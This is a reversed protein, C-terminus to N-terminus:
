NSESNVIAVQASDVAPRSCGYLTNIASDYIQEMTLYQIDFILLDQYIAKFDHLILNEYKNVYEDKFDNIVYEYGYIDPSSISKEIHIIIDNIMNELISFKSEQEICVALQKDCSNEFTYGTEIENILNIEGYMQTGSPHVINTVINRYDNISETSKIVYSFNQYYKNDQLYVTSNLKGDNNKWYGKSQIPGGFISAKAVANGDGLNTLDINIYQEDIYGIGRNLVEIKTIKGANNSIANIIAGYGEPLDYKKEQYISILPLQKYGSGGSVLKIESISGIEFNDFKIYDEIRVSEVTQVKVNQETEITTICQKSIESDTIKSVYAEAGYGGKVPTFIIQDGVRYNFGGNIIEFGSIKNDSNIDSIKAVANVGNGSIDNIPVISGITYGSGGNIIEIDKIVGYIEVVVSKDQSYIKDGVNFTLKTPSFTLRYVDYQGERTLLVNDIYIIENNETYAQTSVLDFPNGEISKVCLSYESIWKGDSAKLINDKPYSISINDNYLVKFLFEYSTETGKREYFDKAYRLLLKKDALVDDPFENLIENKLYTYFYEPANDIDSFYQINDTVYLSHQDQCLWEYYAKLFTEYLEYDNKIHEPIQSSIFTYIYSEHLNSM